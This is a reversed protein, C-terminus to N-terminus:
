GETGRQNKFRGFGSAASKDDATIMEDKAAGLKGSGTHRRVPLVGM